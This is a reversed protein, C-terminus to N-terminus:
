ASFIRLLARYGMLMLGFALSTALMAVFPFHPTGIFIFFFATLLGLLALLGLVFRVVPELILVLEHDTPRRRPQARAPYRRREHECESEPQDSTEHDRKNTIGLNTEDEASPPSM